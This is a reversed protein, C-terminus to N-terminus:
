YCRALTLLYYIRYIMHNAASLTEKSGLRYVVGPEIRGARGARQIASAISINVTKLETVGTNLNFKAARKKGSDIVIRIGEITLSTEAVNTALM